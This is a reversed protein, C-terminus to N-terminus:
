SIVYRLTILVDWLYLVGLQLRKSLQKVQDNEEFRLYVRILAHHQAKSLGLELM